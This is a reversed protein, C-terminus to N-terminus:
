ESDARAAAVVDDWTWSVDVDHEVIPAIAGPVSTDARVIHLSLHTLPAPLPEGAVVMVVAYQGFLWWVASRAGSEVLARTYGDSDASRPLLPVAIENGHRYACASRVGRWLGSARQLAAEREEDSGSPEPPNWVLPVIVVDGRDILPIGGAVVGSRAPRGRGPAELMLEIDAVIPEGDTALVAGVRASSPNEIVPNM